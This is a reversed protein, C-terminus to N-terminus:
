QHTSFSSPRGCAKPKSAQFGGGLITAFCTPEVVMTTEDWGVYEMICQLGKFRPNLQLACMNHTTAVISTMVFAQFPKLVNIVELAM